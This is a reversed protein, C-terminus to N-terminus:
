CGALKCYEARLTSMSKIPQGYRGPPLSAWEYSIKNMLNTFETATMARDAPVTAKRWSILTMAGSTQNEPRFNPLGLGNWTKTLFQYRGAATSCYGGSCITKNPHVNCDTFTRFAFTVNYGDQSYGRTGEAWAITDLLAKRKASVIGAARSPSCSGGSGTGSGTSAGSSSVTDLYVGYSWGTRTGWKINYWGSKPAGNVVSVITGEPMVGLISASTSPSSRLNLASNARLQTGAAVPASVSEAERMDADDDPEPAGVLQPEGDGVATTCGALSFLGVLSLVVLSNRM